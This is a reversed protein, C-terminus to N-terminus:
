SKVAVLALSPTAVHAAFRLLASKRIARVVRAQAPTKAAEDVIDFRDLCRFGLPALFDRLAYYSFWNVAPYRAYNAISPRSTVALRECYRKLASPYWSYLPLNFEQQRPCLVNTTSVYFLGGSRLVRAAERLCTRWDPVHELLEPLLCVDVTENAWPLQTATGVEFRISLGANAARERALDILPKNVDLGCVRHGDAAWLVAQSGPGCGIDAVDLRSPMSARRALRLMIVKVREASQQALASASKDAYYDYFAQHTTHDWAARETTPNTM